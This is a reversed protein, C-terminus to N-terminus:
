AAKKQQKFLLGQEELDSNLTGPPQMRLANTNYMVEEIEDDDIDVGWVNGWNLGIDFDVALPVNAKIGFAKYVLLPDTFIKKSLEMYKRLTVANNPVEAALSDHVTNVLRIRRIEPDPHSELAERLRCAAYICFDSAAAQIPTNRAQRKARNAVSQTPAKAYPLRRWRGFPSRALCDEAITEDVNELYKAADPFQGMWKEVAELAEDDEIGLDTALSKYHKGYILGFCVAKANQRMLKAYKTQDGTEPDICEAPDLGYMDIATSMHLDGEIKIARQLEKNTPDKKLADALEMAKSYKAALNDDGSMIGLWRVEAQSFDLQVMIMDDDVTYMSKIQKKDRTDGRVVQQTNPDKASLRGTETSTLNFSPHVRGDGSLQLHVAMPSLYAKDLKSLQQYEQFMSVVKIHKYRQQFTKDVSKDAGSLQLIDWFLARTHDPVSPIFKSNKRDSSTTFRKKQKSKKKKKTSSATAKGSRLLQMAEKVDNHNAFFEEIERLRTTISSDKKRLNRLLDVNIVQGNLQLDVAYITADSYMKNCLRRLDKRSGEFEWQEEITNYLRSTVAADIGVYEDVLHGEEDALNKRKSKIKTDQYWRFGLYDRALTELAYPYKIGSKKRTENGLYAMVQTDFIRKKGERGLWLDWWVKIMGTEYRANHAVYRSWKAGKGIWVIRLLEMVEELETINFPTDPHYLPIVWSVDERSNLSFGVNLLKTSKDLRLGTAEFDFCLSDGKEVKDSMIYDIFKKVRDVTRLHHIKITSRDGRTTTFGTERVCPVREELDEYMQEAAWLDTKCYSRDWTFMTGRGKSLTRLGKPPRLGESRLVKINTRPEGIALAALGGMGIILKPKLNTLARTTYDRCYLVAGKADDLPSEVANKRKMRMEHPLEFWDIDGVHCRVAPVIAFSTVGTGKLSKLIEQGAKDSMYKGKHEDMATPPDAVVLLDVPDLESAITGELDYRVVKSRTCKVGDVKADYYLCEDCPAQDADHLVTRNYVPLETM